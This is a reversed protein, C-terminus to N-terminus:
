STDSGSDVAVGSMRQTGRHARCRLSSSAVEREADPRQFIAGLKKILAAARFLSALIGGRRAAVCDGTRLPRVLFSM